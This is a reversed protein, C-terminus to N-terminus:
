SDCSESFECVVFLATILSIFAIVFNPSLISIGLLLFAVSIIMWKKFTQIM